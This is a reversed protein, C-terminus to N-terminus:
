PLQQSSQVSCSMHLHQWGAHRFRKENRSEHNKKLRRQVPHIAKATGSRKGRIWIGDTKRDVGHPRVPPAIRVDIDAEVQPTPASEGAVGSAMASSTIWHAVSRRPASSLGAVGSRLWGHTGAAARAGFVGDAPFRVPPSAVPLATMGSGLSPRPDIRGSVACGVRRRPFEHGATVGSPKLGGRLLPPAAARLAVSHSNLALDPAARLRTPTEATRCNRNPHRRSNEVM